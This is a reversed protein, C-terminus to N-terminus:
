DPQFREIYIMDKEAQSRQEDKSLWSLPMRV